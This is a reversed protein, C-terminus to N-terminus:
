RQSNVRCIDSCFKKRGKRETVWFNGCHGCFGSYAMGGALLFEMFINCYLTSIPSEFPGQAFSKETSFGTKEDYRLSFQVQNHHHLILKYNDINAFSYNIPTDTRTNKLLWTRTSHKVKYFPAISLSWLLTFDSRNDWEQEIIKFKLSKSLSKLGINNKLTKIDDSFEDKDEPHLSEYKLLLDEPDDGSRKNVIFGDKKLGNYISFIEANNFSDEAFNITYDERDFQPGLGTPEPVFEIFEVDRQTDAVIALIKIICDFGSVGFFRRDQEQKEVGIIDFAKEFSERYGWGKLDKALVTELWKGNKVITKLDPKQSFM